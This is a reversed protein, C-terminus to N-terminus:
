RSAQSPFHSSQSTGVQRPITIVALWNQPDLVDTPFTQNFMIEKNVNAQQGALMFLDTYKPNLGYQGGDIIAKTATAATNYDKVLMALRAKLGLAVGKNVRGMAQVAQTNAADFLSAAEDMDAILEPVVTAVPTRRQTEYEAPLLPKRYYVVDGFWGMLHYYAWARLVLAEARIRGYTKSDVNGQGKKMGELQQNARAVLKYAQQWATVTLSNNILFPGADGMAIQDESNGTRRIAVDTTSEIAFLLPTNNAQIWFSSAYVGNLGLNMEEETSLFTESSSSDLPQRDLFKKCGTLAAAFVIILSIKKM